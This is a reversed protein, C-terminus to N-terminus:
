AEVRESKTLYKHLYILPDEGKEIPKRVIEIPMSMPVKGETRAAIFEVASDKGSLADFYIKYMVVELNTLRDSGPINFMERASKELNEHIDQKGIKKLIDPICLKTVPRGNPNGSVGPPFFVLNAINGKQKDTMKRAQRAQENDFIVM